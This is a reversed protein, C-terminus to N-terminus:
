SQRRLAIAEIEIQLEPRSLSSVEVLSDTPYPESFYQRRLAIITPLQSMDTVFITVKVVDDLSSDGARLVRALNQFTQHAQAEFDDAGVTDGEDSISSQGSVFLLQGVALAPSYGYASFRDPEFPVASIKTM